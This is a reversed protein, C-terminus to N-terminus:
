NFFGRADSKRLSAPQDVGVNSTGKAEENEYGPQVFAHKDCKNRIAISKLDQMTLKDFGFEHKIEQFVKKLHEFDLENGAPAFYGPMSKNIVVARKKFEEWDNESTLDLNKESKNRTEELFDAPTYYHKENFFYRNWANRSTMGNIVFFELLVSTGRYWHTKSTMDNTYNHHLFHRFRYINAFSDIFSRQRGEEKLYDPAEFGKVAGDVKFYRERRWKYMNFMTPNTSERLVHEFLPDRRMEEGKFMFWDEMALGRQTANDQMFNWEKSLLWRGIPALIRDIGFTPGFTLLDETDMCERSPKSIQRNRGLMKSNLIKEYAIKELRM